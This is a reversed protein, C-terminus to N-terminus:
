HARTMREIIDATDRTATPMALKRSNAAMGALRARDSNLQNVTELLWEPTIEKQQKLLAAGAKVLYGANVTQHDDVAFPFPVFVAAKGAAALESVTLAGARCIVLDAWQYAENMDDIFASVNAEVDTGAYAAAMREYDKQGTQHRLEPRADVPMMSWCALVVDNLAVAGLSGGVVLVRLRRPEEIAASKLSDLGARVPNGVVKATPLAGPFAQLSVHAIRSLLRNTMGALANQEHIVLPLGCMRAAVGGPGAIYGGFGVVISAKIQHMVKMSQWTAQAIRLPAMLLGAVGKGRLGKINVAHLPIGNAPVLRQEIGAPTGLWHIDYGRQQLEKAVALAPFVHGGTGAAMILATRSM